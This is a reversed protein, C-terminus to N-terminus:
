QVLGPIKGYTGFWTGGEGRFNEVNCQVEAEVTKESSDTSVEKIVVTVVGDITMIRNPNSCDFRHYVLAKTTWTDDNGDKDETKMKDFLEKFDMKKKHYLLQPASGGWFGFETEGAVIGPSSYPDEYLGELTKRLTSTNPTKESDFSTWGACGNITGTPYFAINGGCIDGDKYDFWAWSIGFPLQVEGPDWESKPSLAAVANTEVSLSDIKFIRAFFTGIGSTTSDSDVTVKVANPPHTSCSCDEEDIPTFGSGRWCGIEIAEGELNCIEGAIKNKGATEQAINKIATDDISGCDLGHNFYQEGLMGAGSLAAADAVNQAENKSAMLLGVDVALAAFGLFVVLMLAVVIITAGRQNDKKEEAIKKHNLLNKM